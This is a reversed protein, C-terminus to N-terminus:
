TEQVTRWFREVRPLESACHPCWTSFFVVATVQRPARLELTVPHTAEDELELAPAPEGRRESALLRQREDAEVAAAVAAVDGCPALAERAKPMLPHHAYVLKAPACAEAPRQLAVLARVLRLYHRPDERVDLAPTSQAATTVAQWEGRAAHVAVALRAVEPASARWRQGADLCREVLPLRREEQAFLYCANLMQEHGVFPAAGLLRDEVRADEGRGATLAALYSRVMASFVALTTAPSGSQPLLDALMRARTRLDPMKMIRALQESDWAVPAGELMARTQTVWLVIRQTTLAGGPIVYPAYAPKTAGTTADLVPDVQRLAALPDAPTKAIAVLREVEQATLHVHGRKELPTAALLTRLKLDREFALTVNLPSCDCATNASAPGSVDRLYGMIEDAAGRAEVYTGDARDAEPVMGTPIPKILFSTAQPFARRYWAARAAPASRAEALHAREAVQVPAQVVAPSVGAGACASCALVSAIVKRPM